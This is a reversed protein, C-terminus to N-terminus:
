VFIGWFEQLDRILIFIVDLFEFTETKKKMILRLPLHADSVIANRNALRVPFKTFARVCLTM